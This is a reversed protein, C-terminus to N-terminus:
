FQWLSCFLEVLVVVVDWWNRATTNFSYCDRYRVNVKHVVVFTSCPEFFTASLEDVFAHLFIMWVRSIDYHSCFCFNQTVWRTSRPACLAVHCFQRPSDNMCHLLLLSFEFNSANSEWISDLRHEVVTLDVVQNKSLRFSFIYCLSLLILSGNRAILLYSLSFSLRKLSNFFIVMCDVRSCAPPEVFLRLSVQRRRGRWRIPVTVIPRRSTPIGPM